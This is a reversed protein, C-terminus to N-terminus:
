FRDGDGIKQRQLKRESTTMKHNIIQLKKQQEENQWWFELRFEYAEIHAFEEELKEM